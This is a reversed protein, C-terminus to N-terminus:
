LSRRHQVQQNPLGNWLPVNHRNEMRQTRGAQIRGPHEGTHFIM